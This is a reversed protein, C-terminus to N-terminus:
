KPQAAARIREAALAVLKQLNDKVKLSLSEGHDFCEGVLSLALADPCHRYLETATALIGAPSFEHTFISSQKQPRIQTSVIEGPVGPRAADLFLVYSAESVTQALEPTLQHRTVIEVHEPFDLGSLEEAAQWALGDDGRLPNGYAVVLIRQAM